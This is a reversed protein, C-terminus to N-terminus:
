IAKKDGKSSKVYKGKKKKLIEEIEGMMQLYCPACFNWYGIEWGRPVEEKVNLEIENDNGCLDCIHKVKIM